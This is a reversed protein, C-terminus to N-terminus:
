AALESYSKRNQLSYGRGWVTEINVGFPKVKKRINCVLVDVIKEEPVEDDHRDGYLSFWIFHKDAVDRAAICQFLRTQLPTLKWHRPPEIHPVLMAKLQLIQEQLIENKITLREIEARSM